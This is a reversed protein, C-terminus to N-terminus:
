KVYLVNRGYDIVARHAKLFDAGIIGEVAEENAQGLAENVHELDLIVFSMNNVTKGGLEFINDNGINTIMNSAGAGAAKVDSDESKMRFHVVSSFGICSNSAGTDLIFYGPQRNISARLKYHGTTLKKLPIRFYENSELLKRLITM